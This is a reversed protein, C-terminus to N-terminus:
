GATHPDAWNTTQCHKLGGNDKSNLDISFATFSHSCVERLRQIADVLSLARDSIARGDVETEVLKKMLNETEPSILDSSIHLTM